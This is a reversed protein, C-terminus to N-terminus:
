LEGIFGNRLASTCGLEKRFEEDISHRVRANLDDQGVITDLEGVTQSIQYAPGYETM